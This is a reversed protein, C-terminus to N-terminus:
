SGYFRPFFRFIRALAKKVKGADRIVVPNLFPSTNRYLLGQQEVYLEWLAGGKHFYTRM